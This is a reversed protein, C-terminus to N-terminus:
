AAKVMRKRAHPGVRLAKLWFEATREDGFQYLTVFKQRRKSIQIQFM